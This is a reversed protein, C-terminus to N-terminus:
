PRAGRTLRRWFRVLPSVPRNALWVDSIERSRRPKLDTANVTVRQDLPEGNWTVRLPPLGYRSTDDSM